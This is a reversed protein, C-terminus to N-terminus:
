AGNARDKARFFTRKYVLAFPSKEQKKPSFLMFDPLFCRQSPSQESHSARKQRFVPKSKQKKQEQLSRLFPQAYQVQISIINRQLLLYVGSPSM